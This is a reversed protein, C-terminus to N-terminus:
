KKYEKLWKNTECYINYNRNYYKTSWNDAMLYKKYNKARPEVEIIQFGTNIGIFLHHMKYPAPKKNRIIICSPKQDPYKEDWYIKFLVAYDICNVLGDGNIDHVYTKVKHMVYEIREDTEQDIPFDGPKEALFCFLLIIAPLVLYYLFLSLIYKVYRTHTMWAEPTDSYKVYNESVYSSLRQKDYDSMQYYCRRYQMGVSCNACESKDCRGFQLRCICAARGKALERVALDNFSEQRTVLRFENDSM